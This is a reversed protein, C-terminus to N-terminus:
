SPLTMANKAIVRPTTGSVFHKEIMKVPAHKQQSTPNGALLVVGPGIRVSSGHRV